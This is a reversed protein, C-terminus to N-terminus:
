KTKLPSEFIHGRGGVLTAATGPLNMEKQLSGRDTAMNTAPLASSKSAPQRKLDRGQPVLAGCHEATSRVRPGCITDALECQNGFQPPDHRNRRRQQFQLDRIEAVAGRGLDFSGLCHARSGPALRDALATFKPLREPCILVFSPTFCTQFPNITILTGSMDGSLCTFVVFQESQAEVPIGRRCSKSTRAKCRGLVSRCGQPQYGGM